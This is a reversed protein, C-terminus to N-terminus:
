MIIEITIRADGHSGVYRGGRNRAMMVLQDVDTDGDILKSMYNLAKRVSWGKDIVWQPLEKAMDDDQEAWKRIADESLLVRKQRIADAVKRGCLAKIRALAEEGNESLSLEDNDDSLDVEVGKGEEKQSEIEQTVADRVRLQTVPLDHKACEETVRVWVEPVKSDELKSLEAAVSVYPPLQLNAEDLIRYTHETAIAAKVTRRELGFADYAYTFFDREKNDGLEWLDKEWITILGSGLERAAQRGKLIAQRIAQSIKALQESLALDKEM